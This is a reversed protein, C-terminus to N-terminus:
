FCLPVATLTSCLSLARQIYYLNALATAVLGAVIAVALPDNFQMSGRATLVVLGIGSKALLLTQSCILGSLVASLAGSAHRATLAARATKIECDLLGDGAALFFDRYVDGAAMPPPTRGVTDYSAPSPSPSPSLLPESECDSDRAPCAPVANMPLTPGAAAAVLGRPASAPALAGAGEATRGRLRCHRRRWLLEVGLLLAVVASFAAFYCVYTPRRYLRLLEDLSLPPEDIAGFLAVCGSGVAVLLTGLADTRVFPSALMWRAFAANAVLGVAALPATVFVPLMSLALMPPVTSSLIYLALGAVWERDRWVGGRRRRAGSGSPSGLRLHARKQLTLGLSHGVSGAVSAAVGLLVRAHM